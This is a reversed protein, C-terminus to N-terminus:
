MRNDSISGVRASLNAIVAGKSLMPAMAQAMIVPGIANISMVRLAAEADFKALSREPMLGSSQDHLLGAVNLLLDVSGGHEHKIRSALSQADSPDTVDCSMPLVRGPFDAQLQRLAQSTGSRSTAIIAGSTRRLLQDAFALGIGRSAGSVVALQVASLSHPARM